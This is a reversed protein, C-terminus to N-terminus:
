LEGTVSRLGAPNSAGALETQTHITLLATEGFSQGMTEATSTCVGPYSSTLTSM